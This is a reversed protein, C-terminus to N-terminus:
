EQRERKEERRKREVRKEERRKEERGKGERRRKIGVTGSVVDSFGEDLARYRIHGSHVGDATWRPDFVGKVREIATM